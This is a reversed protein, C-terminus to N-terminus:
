IGDFIFIGFPRQQSFDWNLERILDDQYIIEECSVPALVSQPSFAPPPFPNSLFSLFM